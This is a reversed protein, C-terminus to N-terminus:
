PIPQDASVQQVGIAPPPPADGKAKGKNAARDMAMGLSGAVPDVRLTGTSRLYRLVAVQLNSLAREYSDQASLLSQQSEVVDRSDVAGLKLLEYSYELRRQALDTNRRQIALSTQASYITRIADRVDVIVQDRLGKYNRDARELAILAARYANREAVRDVPLDLSLGATYGGNRSDFGVAPAGARNGITGGAVFNLDPLLGNRKVESQRRADDIQDEATKLDLRYKLALAEADEHELDPMQVDLEEAVVDLNQEIPMGLQLKFADLGTQYQTQATVLDSEAFLQAQLSRQVGLFNIRGAAYLAMTQETLTLLNDYNVRRNVVSKQLAILNFYTAAVDVTFQRRFDEFTRVEYILKRESLILPELNVMGAGRLLPISATFALAASEGNSVNGSLADVFSVLATATLEGGYPLQQKVGASGTALLATRYGVGKDAGQQSYLLSSGATFQPEFLHRQLTVDLAALYLDEMQTEYTRGHQVAYQISDFLSLKLPVEEPGGPGLRLSKSAAREAAVVGYPSNPSTPQTAAKDPPIPQPGLAEAPTPSMRGFPILVRLPEMPSPRAPPLPTTPIKKYSKETPRSPVTTEAVAEPKYGLAEKKRDDLISYVQRDASERYAEATCGALTVLSVIVLWNRVM